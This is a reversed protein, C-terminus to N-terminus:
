YPKNKAIYYITNKDLTNTNLLHGQISPAKLGEQLKLETNTIIRAEDWLGSNYFSQITKAGGEVLAIGLKLEFLRALLQQISYGSELGLDSLTYSTAENNFANLKVKVDRDWNGLLIRVPNKGSWLRSTLKPNDMNVTNKGVIIADAETRWRHVLMDAAFTSIKTTQNHKAIFFDASQAFKLIVYPRHERIMCTYEQILIQAKHELIPGIVHLGKAKLWEISKGSMVPNPDMTGFIVEPIKHKLIFETCPGTKGFHNCPELSVYLSSHSILSRDEPKVSEVANVEAHAQGFKQHYGEGIIRDQYVLIAGVKPNPSVAGSGLRALYFCYAM